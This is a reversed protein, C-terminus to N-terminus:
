QQVEPVDMSWVDQWVVPAVVGDEAVDMPLWAQPDLGKLGDPSQQWRDGTYVYLTKGSSLKVAVVYNQQSRTVSVQAPAPDGYECGQGPTSSTPFDEWWPATTSNTECALNTGGSQPLWPGMPDTATYAFLGSGQKCYCCCHGFTLVYKAGVRFLAPAEVFYEPFTGNPADHVTAVAGTSHAFDATLRPPQCSFSSTFFPPHPVPPLPTTTASM